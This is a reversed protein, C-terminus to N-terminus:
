SKVFRGDAGKQRVKKAEPEVVVEVVKPKVTNETQCIRCILVEDPGPLHTEDTVDYIISGCSSCYGQM